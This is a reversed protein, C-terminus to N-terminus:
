GHLAESPRIQRLISSLRDPDASLLPVLRRGMEMLFGAPNAVFRSSRRLFSAVCDDDGRLLPELFEAESAFQAQEEAGAERVRSFLAPPLEPLRYIIGSRGDYAIVSAAFATRLLMSLHPNRRLVSELDEDADGHPVIPRSPDVGTTTVAAVVAYVQSAGDATVVLAGISPPEASTACEATFQQVSAEVVRGLIQAPTATM